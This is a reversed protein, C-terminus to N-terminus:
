AAKDKDDPRQRRRRMLLDALDLYKRIWSPQHREEERAEETCPRNIQDAKKKKGM